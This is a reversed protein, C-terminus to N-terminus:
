LSDPSLRRTTDVAGLDLVIADNECCIYRRGQWLEFVCTSDIRDRLFMRATAIAEHENPAFFKSRWVVRGYRDLLQCNYEVPESM